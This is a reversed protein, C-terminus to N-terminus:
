TITPDVYSAMGDSGGKECDMARVLRKQWKIIEANCDAYTVIGADPFAHKFGNIVRTEHAGTTTQTNAAM